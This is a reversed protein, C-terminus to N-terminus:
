IVHGKLYTGNHLRDLREIDKFIVELDNPTLSNLYRQYSWGDPYLIKYRDSNYNCWAGGTHSLILAVTKVDTAEVLCAIDFASLMISKYEPYPATKMNGQDGWVWDRRGCFFAHEKFFKEIEDFNTMPIVKEAIFPIVHKKEWKSSFRGMMHGRSSPVTLFHKLGLKIAFTKIIESKLEWFKEKDEKNRYRIAGSHNIVPLFDTYWCKKDELMINEMNEYLFDALEEPTHYDILNEDVYVVAGKLEIWKREIFYSLYRKCEKPINDKGMCAPNLRKKFAQVLLSFASKIDEETADNEIEFDFITEM